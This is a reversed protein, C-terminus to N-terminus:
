SIPVPAAYTVYTAAATKRTRFQASSGAAVVMNGVVTHGSAAATVTFANAGTAIVSWDFSQGIEMSTETDMVAGTPVTGAVAAATTSTVLGALMMAATLAGTANLVGPAPQTQSQRQALVVPSLGVSYALEAAGAKLIITAGATYPGYVTEAGAAQNGIVAEQNPFNPYGSRRLVQCKSQSYVAISQNATLVVEKSGQPYVVNVPKM